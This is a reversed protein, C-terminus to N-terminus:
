NNVVKGTGYLGLSSNNFIHLYSPLDCQIAGDRKCMSLAEAEIAMPVPVFIFKNYKKDYTDEEKM